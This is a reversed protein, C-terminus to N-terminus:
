SKQVNNFKKFKGGVLVKGDPQLAGIRYARIVLHVGRGVDDRDYSLRDLM